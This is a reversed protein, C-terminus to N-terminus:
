QKPAPNHEPPMLGEKKMAQEIRSLKTTMMTQTIEAVVQPEVSTLKQGATSKYFSTIQGIEDLTLRKAYADATLSVFEDYPMAEAMARQMRQAYDPPLKEGHKSRVSAMRAVVSGLTLRIREEFHERSQMERVMEMAAQRRTQLEAADINPATGTGQAQAATSRLCMVILM